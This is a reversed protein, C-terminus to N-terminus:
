HSTTVHSFAGGQGSGALVRVHDSQTGGATLRRIESVPVTISITQSARQSQEIYHDIVHNVTENLGKKLAAGIEVLLRHRDPGTRVNFSGSYPKDPSKNAEACHALYDDVADQFAQRLDDVNSGEYAIIDRIHLVRGVLCGDEISVEATGSYGRHNFVESM